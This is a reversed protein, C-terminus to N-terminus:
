WTFQSVIQAEEVDVKKSNRTEKEKSVGGDSTTQFARGGETSCHCNLEM